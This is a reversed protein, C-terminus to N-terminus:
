DAWYVWDDWDPWDPWDLGGTFIKLLGFSFRSETQLIMEAAANQSCVCWSTTSASGSEVDAERIARSDAFM